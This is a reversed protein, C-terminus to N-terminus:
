RRAELPSSPSTALRSAHCHSATAGRTEVRPRLRTPPYPGTRIETVASRGLAVLKWRRASTPEFIRSDWGSPTYRSMTRSCM